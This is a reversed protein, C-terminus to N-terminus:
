FVGKQKAFAHTSSRFKWKEDAVHWKAGVYRGFSGRLVLFFRNRLADMVTDTHNFFTLHIGNLEFTTHTAFVFDSCKRLTSDGDLAMDAESGLRNASHPTELDLSFCTFFIWFDPNNKTSPTIFSISSAFASSAAPQKESTKSHTGSNTPSMKVLLTWIGVIPIPAPAWQLPCTRTRCSM